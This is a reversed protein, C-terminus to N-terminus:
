RIWVVHAHVCKGVCAYVFVCIYVFLCVFACASVRLCACMSLVLVLCVSFSAERQVIKGVIHKQAIFALLTFFGLM